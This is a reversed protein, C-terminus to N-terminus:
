NFSSVKPTVNLCDSDVLLDVTVPHFTKTKVDMLNVAAGAEQREGALQVPQVGVQQAPPQTLPLQGGSAEVSSWFLHTVGVLTANTDM